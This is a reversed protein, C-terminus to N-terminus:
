QSSQLLVEMIRLVDRRQQDSLRAFLYLFLHEPSELSEMQASWKRTLAAAIDLLVALSGRMKQLYTSASPEQLM